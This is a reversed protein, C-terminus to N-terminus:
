DKIGERWVLSKSVSDCSIHWDNIHWKFLLTNNLKTKNENKNIIYFTTYNNIKVISLIFIM